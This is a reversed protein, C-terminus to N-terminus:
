LYGVALLESGTKAGPTKKAIEQATYPSTHCHVKFGFREGMRALAVPSLLLPHVLGWIKHYDKFVPEREPAGNPLFLVVNGGPKVIDRAIEWIDRPNTLHEIVHAAFLCDVKEPLDKIDRLDCGLKEVSYRARPASLESSYVKYGAQRLQWSGYGWSSGFDLISGGPAIPIARLVEIYKAFDMWTGAFSSAILKALEEPSPCDMTVGQKYDTQYFENLEEASPKPVRFMVECSPCRYLATVLYKRKVLVTGPEKCAPCTTDANLIRPAAWFLYRLRGVTDMTNPNYIFRNRRILSVRAVTVM